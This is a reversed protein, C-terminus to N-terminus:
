SVDRAEIRQLSTDRKPPVAVVGTRDAERQRIWHRISPLGCVRM